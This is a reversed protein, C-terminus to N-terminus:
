EDDSGLEVVEDDDSEMENQVVNFKVLAQRAAEQEGKKKSSSVGTGVIEGDDQHDKRIKVYMTFMRNNDPGSVDLNGYWPDRWKMKHCYQLLMDKFNNENQIINAFDVEEEMINVVFKNCVDFGGDIYLAGIFAEFVDELIHTNNERGGMREIYRSVIVYQDLGIKQSLLSLTDGNEIKTRLKTMFGEDQNTYRHFIYNAIICHLVSDGLFELREYSRAQLPIAKKPDDIPELEITTNKKSKNNLWEEPSKEIYSTHVMAKKFQETNKIKYDVNYKKLVDDIYQKTIWKNNENLIFLVPDINDM